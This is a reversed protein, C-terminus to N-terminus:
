SPLTRSYERTESPSIGFERHFARNLTVYNGFGWQAAIQSATVSAMEPNTLDSYIRDLRARRIFSGPTSDPGFLTAQRSKEHLFWTLQWCPSVGSLWPNGQFLGPEFTV